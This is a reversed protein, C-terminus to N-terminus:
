SAGEIARKLIHKGEMTSNGFEISLSSNDDGNDLIVYYTPKGSAYRVFKGTIHKATEGTDSDGQAIGIANGLVAKGKNSILSELLAQEYLERTFNPNPEFTM